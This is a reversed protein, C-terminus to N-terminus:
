LRLPMVVYRCSDNGAGRLLASSNADTLFIEITSEEIAALADLLYSANFGIEFAEGDYAVALEEEAEEQDPNNSCIRLHAGGLIFRVGHLQENSLIAARILAQRIAHREVQLCGGSQKPIVRQYSPFRGDILKTTFRVDPWTVRIHNDGLELQLPEDSDTLLRLLEQIGKRPVIVQKTETLPLETVMEALALRHGDTAVARLYYPELELLLGNLYYRVDQLAMAFGTRDILWRLHAQTLELNQTQGTEEVRPFDKTPLTALTFRSNPLQLAIRDHSSSIHISSYEPLNRIIDILKRAPLTTEGAQILETQVHAQIEVELDTATISLRQDRADLLINALIPLTQRREVVGIIAQLAKLLATREIDFEM